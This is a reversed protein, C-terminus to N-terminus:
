SDALSDNEFQDVLSGLKRVNVLRYTDTDREEDGSYVVTGKGSVEPYQSRFYDISKRYESQFTEASKIEIPYLIGAQKYILDVEHGHSDRYFFLSPEKGRNLREKLVDVVAMNEFLAGRLPDREVQTPTELGLLWAALGTEIFYLKPSKILRKGSNEFYPPLRYIIFSAELISLWNHATQTSVGVDSALSAVNLLQAVRGACLRVFKEFLIQDRVQVLQRVDREIYTQYYSRYFRTPDLDQDHKGPMFGQWIFDVAAGKATSLESFSLPLLHLRATRGALSQSLAQSLELQHSGTLIFQAKINDRDVIGQLYSILEPVRQIEDFIVSRPYKRLFARPDERAFRRTDPDELSVYTYDPFILRCLTSKGAQRPGLVSIVRFQSALFKLEKSLKRNFM